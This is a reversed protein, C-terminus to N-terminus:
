LIDISDVLANLDTFGELRIVESASFRLITNGNVVSAHDDVVEAATKRGAWLRGSLMLEDGAEASFDTIRDRGFGRAFVFDDAGSGGTLRDNQTGGVLRDNGAGGSLRDAGRGGVLQDSGSGGALRDNGAGGSLRDNQTGGLLRDAGAGGFLRDSGRGGSLVDDGVGGSLVDGGLGGVLRDDGTQGFLRDNGVQGYLRDDNGGGRLRDNGGGGLMTDNGGGGLLSNAAGNGALRNALANGLGNITASGTLTLDELHDGLRYTITSRVQDRGASAAEAVTDGADDVYYRDNGAGGRMVDAGSGGDLRDDGAGGDLTDSGAQGALTDHGAGGTLRDISAGGSLNDAASTGEVIQGADFIQARIATRSTDGGTRSEDIWSIVFRGGPMASITPEYQDEPRTTNVTFEGGYKAGDATFVQARVDGQSASGNAWSGDTWAVVFRGDDLATVVPESQAGRTTTNVLFEAGVRAGTDSFIQAKIGFFDDGGTGSRDRWVTVFGGTPLAAIKPMHQDSATATNVIFEGGVPVRLSTYIQARVAYGSTDGGSASADTWTVVFGGNALATISPDAQNGSTTTNVLFEGGWKASSGLFIQARIAYGSADGVAGPTKGSEDEWAIVYRGDNLTTVTPRSQYIVTTTNVLFQGGSPTGSADYVQAWVDWFGTPQIDQWTIVFGGNNLPSIAAYKQSGNPTTDIVFEAGQKTGDPNFIQARVDEHEATGFRSWDDYVVVFRGDSLTAVQPAFQSSETATNVLIESGIMLPTTM